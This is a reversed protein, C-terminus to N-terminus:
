RGDSDWLYPLKIFCQGRSVRKLGLCITEGYQNSVIMFKAKTDVAKVTLYENPHYPRPYTEGVGFM